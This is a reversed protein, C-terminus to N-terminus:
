FVLLCVTIGCLLSIRSYLRLNKSYREWAINSLESLKTFAFDIQQVCIEQASQELAGGIYVLEREMEQAYRAPLALLHANQGMITGLPMEKQAQMAAICADRYKIVAQNECQIDAFLSAVTSNGMLIGNKFLAMSQALQRITDCSEKDKGAIKSSLIFFALVTFLSLGIKIYLM